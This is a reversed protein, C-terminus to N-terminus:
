HPGSDVDVAASATAPPSPESKAGADFRASFKSSMPQVHVGYPDGVRSGGSGTAQQNRNDKEDFCGSCGSGSLVVVGLAFAFPFPRSIKTNM